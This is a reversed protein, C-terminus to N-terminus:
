CPVCDETASSDLCGTNSRVSCYRLGVSDKDPLEACASLCLAAAIIVILQTMRKNMIHVPSNFGVTRLAVARVNLGVSYFMLRAAITSLGPPLGVLM